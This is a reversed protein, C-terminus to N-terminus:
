SETSVCQLMSVAFLDLVELIEDIEDRRQWTERILGYHEDMIGSMKNAEAADGWLEEDSIPGVYEIAGGHYKEADISRLVARSTCERGSDPNWYDMYTRLREFRWQEARVRIALSTARRHLEAVRPQRDRQTMLNPIGSEGGETGLSESTLADIKEFLVKASHLKAMPVEPDPEQVIVTPQDQLSHGPVLQEQGAEGQRQM